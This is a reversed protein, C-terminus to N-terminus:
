GQGTYNSLRRLYPMLDTAIMGREGDKAALDGAMAHLCVGMRAADALPVGQAILGGIVGSLIDGMGASAMGPNGRDCLAPLSNPATILSGAGKLVCTGGYRQSILRTAALRDDQVAQVTSALLRAAEGPHPTLVWHEYQQPMTALLNLGDADVVLPLKKECVAAWLQKSWDSQGLGPGLVIVDAKELLPELEERKTVGHCMLEPRDVNMAVAYEPRTAVSVLGAGVRLAAEAAMRPAGSFGSTGGVVLVHGSLGKHWDRARPKLYSQYANLQIKEAVPKIDLFLEAPLQLDNNILEGVYAIGQGTLLGLKLGIFTVTATAHVAAGLVKGTDADIGSPVDIALIPAAMRQMRRIASVMEERLLDHAGTGCLADVIVDPHELDAKENFSNMLIHAERCANLAYKAEEKLRDHHGVQWITVQLGRQRAHYALVYGDGGNNGGGCFVAIKQAHPWRRILFDFAARGARQMLVHSSINFREEALQEFERIQQAQYIPLKTPQM